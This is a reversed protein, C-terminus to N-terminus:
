ELFQDCRKLLAKAFGEDTIIAVARYEKGLCQGLSEKTLVKRLPLKYKKALFDYREMTEQACDEALLILNGQHNQLAKEALFNGSIVKGAKQAMSLLNTIMSENKVVM